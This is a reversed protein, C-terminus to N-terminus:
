QQLHRVAPNLEGAVETHGAGRDIEEARERPGDYDKRLNRWVDQFSMLTVRAVPNLAKEVQRRSLEARM